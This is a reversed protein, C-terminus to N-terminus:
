EVITIRGGLGIAYLLNANKDYLGLDPDATNDLLLHLDVVGKQKAEFVIRGIKGDGSVAASGPFVGLVMDVKGAINDKSFKLTNVSGGQSKLFTDERGLDKVRVKSTDFTVQTGITSMDTVHRAQVYITVDQGKTVKNTSPTLILVPVLWENLTILLHNKGGSAAKFLTHGKLIETTDIFATVTYKLQKNKTVKVQGSAGGNNLTLNQQVVKKVTDTVVLTMKTIGVAALSGDPFHISASIAVDDNSAPEIPNLSNCNVMFLILIFLGSLVILIKQFSRM